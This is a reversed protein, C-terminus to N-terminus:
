ICREVRVSSKEFGALCEILSFCLDPDLEFVHRAVDELVLEDCRQILQHHTYLYPAMPINSRLDVCRTGCVEYGSTALRRM